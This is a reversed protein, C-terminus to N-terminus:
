PLIYIVHLYHSRRPMCKNRKINVIQNVTVVQLQVTLRKLTLCNIILM